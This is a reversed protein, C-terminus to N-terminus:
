LLGCGLNTEHEGSLGGHIRRDTGYTKQLKGDNGAQVVHFIEYVYSSGYAAHDASFHLFVGADVYKSDRGTENKKFVAAIKKESKRMSRETNLRPYGLVGNLFMASIILMQM